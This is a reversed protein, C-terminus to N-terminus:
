LIFWLFDDSSGHNHLYTNYPLQSAQGLILLLQHVKKPNCERPPSSVSPILTMIVEPKQVTLATYILLPTFKVVQSPFRPSWFLVLVAVVVFAGLCPFSDFNRIMGPVICRM